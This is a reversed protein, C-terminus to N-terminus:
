VVDLGQEFVIDVPINAEDLRDLDSQLEAKIQGGKEVWAKAKAYNGDGQITLIENILENMVAKMKEFDVKYTGTEPNRTFAGKEQLYYFRMMNAKGHSSAVGFRVSRFISAMFTIYYDSLDVDGLDGSEFLKTIVFLGLIDAKGEEISTYYDQLAKRVTISKDASLYSLGLGHGVEHFMTNTFFAEFKVHERQGEDILVNAIPVLIKDFKAKMANKLQLKRSGKKERVVEDNPLNIAITKSGANCDGAYYIVDYVNLENGSSGPTENKYKEDVPLSKQLKPLLDTYKALKKSWEKDKILIFSEHAAKSNFLADEYNEIPGVIFDIRNETMELWAFDSAQYDDTLLAQARLELYKKLGAEEVLESAKKILEAAKETQEKFADHYWITKLTGDEDRRILTYLSAKNEDDYSEFEEKTMDAPYFNAGKPKAGYSEIFPKNGDLRDWPGYNIIAFKKTNKDEISNLLAERDGFAEVWYIDHMITAAEFLLPLMQKEKETLVSLDATLKVLVYKDVKKQMPDVNATDVIGEDSETSKPSDCSVIIMVASIIIIFSFIKKLM